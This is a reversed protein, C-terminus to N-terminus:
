MRKQIKTTKMMSGKTLNVIMIKRLLTQKLKLYLVYLSLADRSASVTKLFGM